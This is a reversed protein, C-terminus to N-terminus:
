QVLDWHLPTGRDIRKKAKKGIIDKFYRTHIGHGPRISRINDKTFFEGKNVDKVVFLSRRYIRNEKQKSTIEYNIGGLSQEAIRIESVMEEFEHPEMSFSSDPGPDSRSLTLHKEIIASGLAIAAVSVCSGLTHDSLGVPVEFTNAMHPITKLNMEHPPAPYASTCKLLAIQSNGNRKITNVAEGIEELSALGTSLIIPKGTQATKEILPIDNNEFSAIKYAPVEMSELFDVATNDFPTSFLIIDLGDAIEKLKPQWEWPTYAEEYLQYLNKGKWISDRIKFYENNCNMTITEPKYTQLKVADAGAQKAAEIIKVAKDFNKNHNASMEAVIFTKQDPGILRNGIQLLKM